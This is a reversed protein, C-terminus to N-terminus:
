RLHTRRSTQSLRAFADSVDGLLAREIRQGHPRSLEDSFHQYAPRCEACYANEPPLSRSACFSCWTELPDGFTPLKVAVGM